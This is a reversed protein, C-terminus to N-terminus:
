EAALSRRSSHSAIPRPELEPGPFAANLRAVEAECEPDACTMAGLVDSIALGPGRSAEDGGFWRGCVVCPLWFYGGAEARRRATLREPDGSGGNLNLLWAVLTRYVAEAREPAGLGAALKEALEKTKLPM